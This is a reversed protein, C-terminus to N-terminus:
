AANLLYRDNLFQEKVQGLAFLEDAIESQLRIKFHSDCKSINLVCNLQELAEIETVTTEIVDEMMVETRRDM